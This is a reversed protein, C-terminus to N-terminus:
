SQRHGRVLGEALEALATVSEASEVLRTGWDPLGGLVGVPIHVARIVCEM